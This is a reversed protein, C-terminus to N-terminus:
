QKESCDPGIWRGESRAKMTMEMGNPLGTQHMDMQVAYSDPAYIGAMAMSSTGGDRRCTVNGKVTGGRVTFDSYRCEKGPDGSFARGDPNAAQEPTICYRLTRSTAQQMRQRAAAPLAQGGSIDMRDTVFRGEWQGPKLQVKELQTVAADHSMADTAAIQTDQGAPQKGCGAVMALACVLLGNTLAKTM